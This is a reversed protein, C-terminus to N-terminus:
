WVTRRRVRPPRMPEQCAGDDKGQAPQKEQTGRLEREVEWGDNQPRRHADHRPHNHASSRVRRTHISSRARRPPQRVCGPIGNDILVRDDRHRVGLPPDDLDVVPETLDTTVLAFFQDPLRMSDDVGAMVRLCEPDIQPARDGRTLRPPALDAILVLGAVEVPDLGRDGRYTVARTLNSAVARDPCVDRLQLSEVVAHSSDRTLIGCERDCDLATRIGNHDHIEFPDDLEDVTGGDLQIQSETM